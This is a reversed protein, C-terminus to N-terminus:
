PLQSLKTKADSARNSDAFQELILTYYEKAKENDNLRHYSRGLFYLADVNNEDFEVAKLLSEIAKEYKGKSYDNHGTTYLSSSMQAFTDNGILQYLEKSANTTLKDEQVQVLYEAAQDKDNDIYLKAAKFLNDYITIDLESNKYEDIQSKLSDITSQLEEKENKLTDITALQVQLKDNYENSKTKLENKTNSTITPVILFYLVAIGIIVGLILNVFAMINPKDEKYSSIPMIAKTEKARNISQNRSITDTTEKQIQASEGLEQLYRLTTTNTADIKSVRNLCKRAKEKENSKMYLLALLQWARIFHPNLGTVKKLQIIALDDNGQKASILASNYKKIAQNMSDLKTPSNQVENMYEDANNDEPQFHKSIVWESLADVTEGMEYYILGLLNRAATNQKYLKLSEKLSIIAGTLDRVKAKKLGDNYYKNSAIVIKKYITVDEGCRDCRNKNSLPTNCKPCNMNDGGLM